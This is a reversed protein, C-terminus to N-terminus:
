VVVFDAKKPLAALHRDIAAVEKQDLTSFCAYGFKFLAAVATLAGLAAGTVILPSSGILAGAAATGGAVFGFVLLAAYYIRSNKKRVLLGEVKGVIEDVSKRYEGNYCRRNHEWSAKLDEFSAQKEKAEEDNAVAKGIFFATVFAVALGGLGVWLRTRQEDKKQEEGRHHIHHHHNESNFMKWSHDSLDVNLMPAGRFPVPRQGHHHRPPAVEPLSPHSLESAKKFLKKTQDHVASPIIKTPQYFGRPPNPYFPFSPAGQAPYQVPPASPYSPYAPNYHHPDVVPPYINNNM